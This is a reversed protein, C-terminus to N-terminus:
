LSQMFTNLSKARFKPLLLGPQKMVVICRRVSENEDPFKQDFVVHSDGGNVRSMQRPRRHSKEREGISSLDSLSGNQNLRPLIV